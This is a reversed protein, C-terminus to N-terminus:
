ASVGISQGGSAFLRSVPFFGSAPFSLLCFSFPIVSITPHCWPDISMLKLLSWSITFSLSAQRAATWPIVSDSVGSRSFLHKQYGSPTISCSLILPLRGRGGLLGGPNWHESFRAGAACFDHNKFWLNHNVRRVSVALRPPCLQEIPQPPHSRGHSSGVAVTRLGSAWNPQLSTVALNASVGGEDKCGRQPLLFCTGVKKKGWTSVLWACGMETLLQHRRRDWTPSFILEHRLGINGLVQGAQIVNRQMDTAVARGQHHISHSRKHAEGVESPNWPAKGQIYGDARSGERPRQLLQFLYSFLLGRTPACPLPWMTSLFPM